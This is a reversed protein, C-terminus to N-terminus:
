LGPIIGAGMEALLEVILDECAAIPRSEGGDGLAAAPVRDGFLMLVQCRNDRRSMWTLGQAEPLQQWIWLAWARTRPYDPQDSAFLDHPLLGAAKLGPSTLNALQLTPLTLRSLHLEGALDRQLDHLYGTSPTPVDHLVIEAVAGRPDAAAYLTAITAGTAPNVLPSFRANGLGSDNFAAPAYRGTAANWAHM